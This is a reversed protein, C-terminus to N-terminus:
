QPLLSTINSVVKPSLTRHNSPNRAATPRLLPNCRPDSYDFDELPDKRTLPQLAVQPILASSSSTRLNKLIQDPQENTSEFKETILEELNQAKGKNNIGAYVQLVHMCRSGSQCISQHGSQSGRQSQGVSTDHRFLGVSDDYHHGVSQNHRFVVSSHHASPSQLDRVSSKGPQYVSQSGRQSQGVSTDHRFLGVSDDYHHGVSQNHRFVVSSHHASPSQLDRVSSKGPQYVTCPISARSFHNALQYVPRAIRDKIARLCKMANIIAHQM